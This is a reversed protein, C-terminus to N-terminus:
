KNVAEKFAGAASFAPVKKAAIQIKAKTQPNIGERAERERREFSGFGPVAVKDGAAVAEVVADVFAGLVADVDKQTLGSADAVKKVLDAKNM